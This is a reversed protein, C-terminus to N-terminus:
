TKILDTWTKETNGIIDKYETIQDGLASQLSSVDPFNSIPLENLISNMTSNLEGLIPQGLQQIQSIADNIGSLGGVPISCACGGIGQTLSAIQGTINGVINNMLDKANLLNTISDIPVGVSELISSVDLNGLTDLSMNTLTDPLTNLMGQISELNTIDGFNSVLTDSISVINELSGAVDAIGFNHEAVALISGIGFEQSQFDTMINNMSLNVSNSTLNDILNSPIEEMNAIDSFNSISLSDLLQSNEPLTDYIEILTTKMEDLYTNDEQINNEYTPLYDQLNDMLNTMKTEFDLDDSFSQTLRTLETKLNTVSDSQNIINNYHNLLEDELRNVITMRALKQQPTGTIEGM